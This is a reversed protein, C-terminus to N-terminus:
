DIDVVSTLNIKYWQVTSISLKKDKEDRHNIHFIFFLMMWM